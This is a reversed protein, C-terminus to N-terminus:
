LIELKAAQLYTIHLKDNTNGMREKREDQATYGKLSRNNFTIIEIHNDYCATKKM